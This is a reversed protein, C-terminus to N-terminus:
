ATPLWVTVTTGEGPRSDIAIRGGHADVIQKSLALGLGAGGTDRARSREGRFFPEFVRPRDDAAIGIGRDRVTIAAGGDAPGLALVVATDPESYKAANDLVNDVVRALLGAEAPVLPVAERSVQLTRGPHQRRFRAAAADLLAGPDTPARQLALTGGADLRSSTLLDAVLRELEAADEEIGALHRAADAPAEAALALSVRIRALPTRLEHSVNALLERQGALLRSVRDATEDFTRALTGIEDRRDLRARATLDGAGFRRATESLHELPRAIARALPASVLALVVWVVGLFALGRLLADTATGRLRVRLYRDDRLRGSVLRHSQRRFGTGAVASAAEAPSLAPPPDEGARAIARGDPAYVALDVDLEDGMRAATAPLAEDPVAALLRAVHAGLVTPHARYRVDRGIFFGALGLALVTAVLLLVGHFYIRRYLSRRRATM